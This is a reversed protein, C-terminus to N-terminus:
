KGPVVAAPLLVEVSAGGLHSHGIALRGEYAEVIDRVMALGIGHGPQAQDIRIGRSLVEEVRADPIGPGDDIVTLILQGGTCTLSVAVQRCAYKYANDLLNGLLELLDGESARLAAGEPLETSVEVGKDRYVKALSALVREVVPAVVIPPALSSHGATAARQLQYQVINDMRAVQEDLARELQESTGGKAGRLVALPTKLSHALDGLANKYRAQRGRENRMLININDTLHKLEPPYAQEVAEQRGAEIARLEGAVRALPRLGWALSGGLALLLLLSLAGLWGWLGRRYRTLQATFADREELVSFRLPQPGGPLEWVIALSALFLDGGAVAGFFEDPMEGVVPLSRGIASPSRWLEGEAGLIAAYLGSDPLGLRAESLRELRPMGTATLETDAMLLYLQAFLRERVAARASDRFAQDLTVATLVVFGILVLAAALGVRAKLSIM